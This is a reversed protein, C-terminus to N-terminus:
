HMNGSPLSFDFTIRTVFEIPEGNRYFPRYHWLKVAAVVANALQSAPSSVLRVHQVSGNKGILAEVVIPKSSIAQGDLNLPAFTPKVSGQEVLGGDVRLSAGQTQPQRGALTAPASAASNATPAPTAASPQTESPVLRQSAAKAVWRRNFPDTVETALGSGGQSPADFISADRVPHSGRQPSQAVHHHRAEARRIRRALRHTDVATAPTAATSTTATLSTAFQRLQSIRSAAFQRLQSNRNSYEVAGAVGAALLAFCVAIALLFKKFHHDEDREEDQEDHESATTIASRFAGVREGDSEAFEKEEQPTYNRPQWPLREEVEPDPKRSPPLFLLPSEPEHRKETSETTQSIPDTIEAPPPTTVPMPIVPAPKEAKAAPEFADPPKAVESERTSADTGGALWNHLRQRSDDSLEVFRVGAGRGSESLWSVQGTGAVPEEENLRLSFQMRTSVVMPHAVSICMGGESLDLLIGGNDPEINLYVVSDVKQRRAHRRERRPSLGSRPDFIKM